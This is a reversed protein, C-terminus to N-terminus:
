RNPGGFPDMARLSDIRSELARQEMGIVLNLLRALVWGFAGGLASAEVLGLWAGPWSVEYGIFYNGLLSLTPGVPDGGRLLLVATALFLGVGAVSGIAAALAVPDYRAFAQRIWEELTEPPARGPVLRDGGGETPAAIEEHYDAEVNVAWVDHGSGEALNRAALMGTLMSHDQNNYRHQGNRGVLELNRFPDLAKRITVLADRYTSDYIPYAKPTRIVFGDLVEEGRVLGLSECERRALDVLDEDRSCWLDDSEQLFYELGLSTRSPDPVMEPSWNKFNQIRGVRVESSHVYIWNDPFVERRDVVLGVTMFDRYRLRDAARMVEKPLEPDLAHVFDRVPMSSLLGDAGLEEETGDARRAVVSTVRGERHLIREVRTDMRIEVGREALREACREWMQGPGHRPYYFRDILTTIVDSKKRARSGLLANKLLAGVDLNRIRQAAWVADIESCPIGWVKETYSQFFTEFLRRGFRRTVWEEFSRERGAPRGIWARLYSLVIRAAEVPGLGILANLPNLPYDFYKGRYYIRSLRPRLLLDEGLFEEWFDQVARVKTFFRHGGIDFRYGGRCVTRSIGGVGDSAELVTVPVGLEVLEHAATLGAPGAGIM